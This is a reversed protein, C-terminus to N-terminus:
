AEQGVHVNTIDAEDVKVEATIVSMDAITMLTTGPQNQVGIIAIESM